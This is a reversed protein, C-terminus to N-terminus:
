EITRTRGTQLLEREFFEIEEATPEDSASFVPGDASLELEEGLDLESALPKERVFWLLAFAVLMPVVMWLFIPTLADNYSTLIPTKIEDPLAAVSSPTLSNTGGSLSSVDAGSQQMQAIVPALRETILDTLRGVFISGVLAAGLTSGIQRFFNNSATATGVVTVPFSNQVVLVLMQMSMGLGAGLIGLYVGLMTLSTTVEITSLLFLSVAAILTGVIPLWKYHSTKSAILGSVVGFILLGVVMPIMMLGSETADLGHVMQLYTPLYGIAGVMAVGMVLGAITTLTFDRNAFFRMPVVPDSAKLEAVVFAVAFVATAGILSLIQWSSWAYGNSSERGGWSTWLVLSTVALSMFMIGLVDVKPGKTGDQQIPERLLFVIAVLALIGLPVNLWFGWRWTLHETFFGGLLPGAVSAVGFVAGMPGQYKGREKPPVISAITAQSLVMLGGAGLGQVVRAIILTAMNQALGGVVSGAVFLAVAIILLPKKGVTDSLKGYIPMTITSALIFATSVWLMQSVGDLEGVVTPLATSFIMQGLSSLLMVVLLGVFILNIQKRSLPTAKSTQM